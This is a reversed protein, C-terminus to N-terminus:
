NGLDYHAYINQQSGRRTNRGLKHQFSDIVRRPWSVLGDWPLRDYSSLLGGILGPLDSCSWQGDMYAEGAGTTGGILIRSFVQNDHVTVWILESSGPPGLVIPTKGARAIELRGHSWGRLRRLVVIRSLWHFM